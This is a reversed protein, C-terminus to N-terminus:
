YGGGTPPNSVASTNGGQKLKTGGGRSAKAKGLKAGKFGAPIKAPQKVNAGKKTGVMPIAASNASGRRAM